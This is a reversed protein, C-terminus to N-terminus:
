PPSIGPTPACWTHLSWPGTLTPAARMVVDAPGFGQTQVELFRETGPDLHISLDSSGNEFLPWRRTSSSDAVWGLRNGAWWEPQLLNGRRVQSAPWRAAFILTCSRPISHGWRMCMSAWSFRRRTGLSFASPIRRRRLPVSHAWASPEDDPNEILVATGAPAKFVSERERASRPPLSCILRDDVRVGNGFWLAEAGRDPFM